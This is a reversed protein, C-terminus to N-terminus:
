AVGTSTTSSITGDATSIPSPPPSAFVWFGNGALALAAIITFGLRYNGTSDALVGAILPGIVTGILVIMSSWGMIAAFNTTGFYDARIAQMLPGRAGWALGHLAVFAGITVASEIWTMLLLGAAHSCMAIVIIIRKNIRDGLYGGLGTGILQFVPIVGAILAAQSASFGRDETLYLAVHAIVATVVILASGHGLSVMWFARTRLAQHVTFHTDNVGEARKTDIEAVGDLPESSSARDIGIVAAALWMAVFLVVGAGALTWRWGFLGFAVVLLPGAFGGIAFGMTQMSLAQARKREFWQVLASTITIFGAFGTGLAAVSLALVFHWQTQIQSIGLFGILIIAAGFRLIKKTGFKGIALGVGPGLIAAGVRTGTFAASFLTVSWGFNSRLEVAINGFGQVWLM